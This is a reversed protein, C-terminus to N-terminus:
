LGRVGPIAERFFGADSLQLDECGKLVLKYVSAVGLLRSLISLVFASARLQLELIKCGRDGLGLCNCAGCRLSSGRQVFAPGEELLEISHLLIGGICLGWDMAEACCPANNCSRLEPADILQLVDEPV